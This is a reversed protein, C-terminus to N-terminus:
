LNCLGGILSVHVGCSGDLCCRKRCGDQCASQVAWSCGTEIPLMNLVLFCQGNLRIGLRIQGDLNALCM